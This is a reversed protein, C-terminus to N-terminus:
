LLVRGLCRTKSRISGRATEGIPLREPPKCRAAPDRVRKAARFLSRGGSLPSFRRYRSQPFPKADPVFCGAIPAKRPSLTDGHSFHVSAVLLAVSVSPM